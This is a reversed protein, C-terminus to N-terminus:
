HNLKHKQKPKFKLKLNLLAAHSDLGSTPEDLFIISPAAVIGCAIHLRRVEGGSIGRLSLGGPLDGGVQTKEAKLLGMCTLTDEIVQKYQQKHSRPLRLRAHLLLTEGVTMTPVFHAEQPVYASISRFGSPGMLATMHGPLAQGSCGQLIEKWHGHHRARFGIDRWQLSVTSTIPKVATGAKQTEPDESVAEKNSDDVQDTKGTKAPKLVNRFLYVTLAGIAIIAAAYTSLVMPLNIAM